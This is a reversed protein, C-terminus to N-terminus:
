QLRLADVPTDRAVGLFLCFFSVGPFIIGSAHRQMGLISDRRSVAISNPQLIDFLWIGTLSHIHRTSTRILNISVFTILSVVAKDVEISSYWVVPEAKSILVHVEIIQELDLDGTMSDGKEYQTTM